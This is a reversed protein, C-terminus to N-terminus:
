IIINVKMNLDVLSFLQLLDQNRMRICGKSGPIGLPIDDPTGHIYIYRQLSDVDGYKNFGAELGDLQIIRTLIWDREPQSSALVNNYIEGTWKRGIFVSNVPAKDGIKSYVRHYGRPTCGSGNKEGIGNKGSSILWNGILQNGSRFTMKQSTLDIHIM